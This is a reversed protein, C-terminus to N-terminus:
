VKQEQNLLTKAIENGLSTLCLHGKSRYTKVIDKKKLAREVGPRIGEYAWAGKLNTIYEKQAKTLTAIEDNCM